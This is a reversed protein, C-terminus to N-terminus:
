LALWECALACLPPVSEPETGSDGGQLEWAARLGARESASSLAVALRVDSHLWRQARLAPPLPPEGTLAIARAAHGDGTAAARALGVVGLAAHARAADAPVDGVLAALAPRVWSPPRAAWSALTAHVGPLLSRLARPRTSLALLAACEHLLPPPAPATLQEAARLAGLAVWACADASASDAAALSASTRAWLM